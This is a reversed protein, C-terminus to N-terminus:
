VKHTYTHTERSIKDWNDRVWSTVESLGEDFSVQPSWGLETKSKAYDLLYQSDQGPRAEIITTSAKFDHGMIRCMKEVVEAISLLNDTAFHYINGPQGQQIAKIIGQSVDRIHIFVRIVKGGGHLEIKKGETLYIATRPIIKFLQQHKGYVNTSRIIIVPFGFHKFATLLYLDTAAKSVAYATTPNLPASEPVPRDCPGYIEASSIHVYYKLYDRTRLQNCLNVVATTNINFYDLPSQNSIFVESLAAYNIIYAPKIKDLLSILEDPQSVLNLQHFEFNETERAKYPLYLRSKEPSRSIGVVFNSPDALLEDVLASGSFCNSGIVVYKQMDGM